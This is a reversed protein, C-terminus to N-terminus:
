NKNWKITVKGKATNKLYSIKPVTVYYQTQSIVAIRTYTRGGDTSRYIYYGNAGINKSWKLMIGNKVTSISLSPTNVRYISSANSAPSKFIWADIVKM